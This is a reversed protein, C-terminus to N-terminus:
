DKLVKFTVARKNAKEGESRIKLTNNAVGATNLRSQVERARRKGLKKNYEDTGSKSAHGIVNLSYGKPIQKTISNITEAIGQILKETSKAEPLSSSNNDFKVKLKALTANISKVQAIDAPNQASLTTFVFVAAILFIIKKM